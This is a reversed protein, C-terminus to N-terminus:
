HKNNKRKLPQPLKDIYMRQYNLENMGSEGIVKIQLAARKAAATEEQDQPKGLIHNLAAKLMPEEQNGLVGMNDLAESIEVDPTLGDVYDSVGHANASKYILPQIAYNHNTNINTKNIMAPSDYLTVSAQFKGATTKGVQIVDIYPNLGNIVLESASASSGTTLVYVKTLNLSNILEGTRIEANFRDIYSEPEWLNQYTDNWQQQIFVEEEYQGTIMSALDVASEVSGGGNYRLDLVLEEVSAGKLELFAANLEEDFDGVFSNYMVYGVKVGEIDLAKSILVPNETLEMNAISVTESTESVTNDNISALHFTVEESALLTQYNSITLTEGNIKTFLDGREIDKGEAPSGPLIYRVVGFIADSDSFRYLMYDVGTSKSIGSFRNELEVYDDVLFSFRDQSSLIGDFFEEPTDYTRIYEDLETNNGFYGNGLEPVDAKYLYIDSMGAYMFQEIEIDRKEKEEVEPVAPVDDDKSCSTFLVGALFVPMLLRTVKM